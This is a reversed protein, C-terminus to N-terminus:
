GGGGGWGGTNSRGRGVQKKEEPFLSLMATERTQPVGDGPQFVSVLHKLEDGHEVAGSPALVGGTRAGM